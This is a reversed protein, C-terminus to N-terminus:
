RPTERGATDLSSLLSVSEVRRLDPYGSVLEGFVDDWSPTSAIHSLAARGMRDRLESDDALRGIAEALSAPDGATAVLGTEGDVVREHAAGRDVTIVPLGSAAAEVAVQGFTETESPLCFIDASAYAAALDDGTLPGLLKHPTGKLLREIEERGPGEGVIALRLDPRDAAARRFAEALLPVGKERSLRGVYLLITADKGGLKRRSWWSGRDPGFQRTDVGRTFDVLKDRDIGSAVLGEATSQTPVYVREAQGYFWGVARACIQAFFRDGSLDLAYRALETHYTAVFPLGLSRAVLLGALGMPGPTAAHVIDIEREEILDVMDLASPIGLRWDPDGYAPMQISSAAKLRIHGPEESAKEGVDVVTLRADPNRAAFDAMRRMTGAVGNLEDFTDTLMAVRPPEASIEGFFEREIDHSYAIEGRLYSAALFYPFAIGAAGALAELRRSFGGAEGGEVATDILQAHLWGTVLRLREHKQKNKGLKRYKRVLRHDKRIRRMIEAGFTEDKQGKEPQETQPLEPVPHDLIDGVIGRLMNPVGAGGADLHGKVFLTSVSHALALSSGHAGGPATRGSRLHEIVEDKTTAPPMETWANAIAFGSHDDSGGTLNPGAETIPEIGHREALKELYEPGASRAIRVAVENTIRPRAGNRGEWAPFLLLCRELHDATFDGGVRHLPHALSHPLREARIYELSEYINSRLRDIETWQAEDLGWILVHMEAADEPFACTAEVGVIVDPHHAIEAVGTLTNHDTLAIFDMGKSKAVERAGEPTTYSEPLVARNLFWSGTDTSARSHVHLEARIGTDATGM